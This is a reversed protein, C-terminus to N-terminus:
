QWKQQLPFRDGGTQETAVNTLRIDYTYLSARFCQLSQTTYLPQEM